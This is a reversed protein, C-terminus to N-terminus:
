SRGRSEKVIRQAEALVKTEALGLERSLRRVESRLDDISYEVREIYGRSKGQTKLFFILATIDGALVKSYLVTEATDLMTERAEKLVARLSATLRTRHSLAERTVGLAHAAATINGKALRIAEAARNIDIPIGQAM